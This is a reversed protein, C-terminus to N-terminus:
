WRAQHGTWDQSGVYYSLAVEVHTGPCMCVGVCAFYILTFTRTLTSTKIYFIIPSFAKCNESLSSYLKNVQNEKNFKFMYFVKYLQYM